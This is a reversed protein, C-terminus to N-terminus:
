EPQRNDDSRFYPWLVSIHFVPHVRNSTPIDLKYAVKGIQKIVRYPGVWKPMLKKNESNTYIAPTLHTM